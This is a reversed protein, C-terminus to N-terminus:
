ILDNLKTIYKRCKEVQSILKDEFQDDKEIDFIKIKLNDDVDSYTMKKIHEDIIDDYEHGNNKAYYYADKEILHLPTNTLTYILQAKEKGTLIMYAQLQYYYDKNPINTEFLPFTEWSWSNKVDIVVDNLIIDPTGTIFDNEFFQDNKILLGLNLFDALFDISEDEMILGKETYKSSFEAKRNYFQEKLWNKCYTEATKSLKGLEIDKKLRPMTMIQGVQSARIKFQKM